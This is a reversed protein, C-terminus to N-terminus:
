CGFVIDELFYGFMKRKVDILLLVIEQPSVMGKREVIDFILWRVSPDISNRFYCLNSAFIFHGIIEVCEFYVVGFYM